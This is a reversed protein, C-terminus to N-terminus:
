LLVPDLHARRGLLRQLLRAAVNQESLLAHMDRTWIIEEGEDGAILIDSAGTNRRDHLM